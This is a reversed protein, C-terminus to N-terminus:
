IQRRHADSDGHDMGTWYDFLGCSAQDDRSVRQNWSVYQDNVMQVINESVEQNHIQFYDVLARHITSLYDDKLVFVGEKRVFNLHVDPAANM